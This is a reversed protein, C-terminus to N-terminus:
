GGGPVLSVDVDPAGGGRILLSQLCRIDASLEAVPPASLTSVSDSSRGWSRRRQLCDSDPRDSGDYPQRASALREESRRPPDLQGPASRQPESASPGVCRVLSPPLSHSGIFIRRSPSPPELLILVAELVRRRSVVWTPWAWAAVSTSSSRPVLEWGLLGSFVASCLV